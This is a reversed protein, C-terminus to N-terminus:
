SEYRECDLIQDEVDKLVGDVRTLLDRVHRSKIRYSIFRGQRRRDVLGCCYLCDLHMSANSATLGAARALDSANRPGDRLVELIRLRSLDALGRFFKAKVRTRESTVKM